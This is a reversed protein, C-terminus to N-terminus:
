RKSFRILLGGILIIMWALQVWLMFLPVAVFVGYIRHMMVMRATMTGLVFKAIEIAPGAFVAAKLAQRATVHTKPVFHYILFLAVIDVAWALPLAFIPGVTNIDLLYKFWSDSRVWQSIILSAMLGVPLLFIILFRRVMLKWFGRKTIFDQEPSTELIQDLSAGFKRVLNWTTYFVILLGVWGWSNSRTVSAMRDFYQILVSDSSGSLQSLLYGRTLNFWQQSVGIHKLYWFILAVAPVISLITHFALVSSKSQIDAKRFRKYFTWIRHLWPIPPAPQYLTEEKEPRM